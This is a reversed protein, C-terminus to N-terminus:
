NLRNFVAELLRGGRKTGIPVVFMEFTGLSDHSVVYTEQPLSVNEPGSFIAAFCEKGTAAASRKGELPTLDTVEILRLTASSTEPHSFSFRTNLYRVFTERSLSLRKDLATRDLLLESPPRTRAVLNKIPFSAAAAVLAGARLFKRRSFSM